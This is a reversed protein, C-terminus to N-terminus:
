NLNFRSHPALLGKSDADKIMKDVFESVCHGCCGMYADTVKMGGDPKSTGIFIFVGKDNEFAEQLRQEIMKCNEKGFFNKFKQTKQTLQIKKRNM